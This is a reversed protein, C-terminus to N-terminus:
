ISARGRRRRAAFAGAFLLVGAIGPSPVPYVGWAAENSRNFSANAEFTGDFAMVVRYTGPSLSATTSSLLNLNIAGVDPSFVGAAYTGPGQLALQSYPALTESFTNLFFDATDVISFVYEGSGSVSFTRTSSNTTSYQMGPFPTVGGMPGAPNRAYYNNWGGSLEGGEPQQFIGDGFFTSTNGAFPGAGGDNWNTNVGGVESAGSASGSTFTGMPDGGSWSMQMSYSRAVWAIQGNAIRALSCSAVAGLLLGAVLTTKM